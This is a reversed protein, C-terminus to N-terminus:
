PERYLLVGERYKELYAYMAAENKLKPTFATAGSWKRGNILNFVSFGGVKKEETQFLRVLRLTDMPKGSIESPVRWVEFPNKITQALLKLYRERGSKKVKWQRTRKDIFLSKSIILPHGCPLKHLKSANIHQIGFEDLFAKVYEESPLGSSLLDANGVPLIHRSDLEHLPPKCKNGTHSSFEVSNRCIASHTLSVHETDDPLESPTLGAHWDKGVNTAFGADPKPRVPPLPEGTTPHKAHVIDPMDTEPKLGRKRMQFDSLTQVSCRCAFGNPPYFSDWFEHDHPYVKGHLALHDPRTRRDGVAVYRWYPRSKTVRKMQAYRGAMYASQVNTRYINALQWPRLQANKAVDAVRKKFDNFTEGDAIAKGIAHQMTAVQDARALSSVAFARTRAADSMQKYETGSVPVKGKWYAIAEKPPLAVPEVTM